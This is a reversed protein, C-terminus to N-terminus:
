DRRLIKHVCERNDLDAGCMIDDNNSISILEKINFKDKKRTLHYYYKRNLYTDYYGNKGNVNEFYTCILYVDDDRYLRLGTIKKSVEDLEISYENTNFTKIRKYVKGAYEKIYFDDKYFSVYKNHKSIFKETDSIVQVNNNMGYLANWPLYFWKMEDENDIDTIDKHENKCTQLYENKNIVKKNGRYVIEEHKVREDEISYTDSATLDYDRM